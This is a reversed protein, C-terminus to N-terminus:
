GGHRAERAPRMQFLPWWELAQLTKALVSSQALLHAEQSAFWNWCHREFALEMELLVAEPLHPQVQQARKVSASAQVLEGLAQQVHALRMLLSINEKEQKLLEELLDAAKQLYLRQSAKDLLHSRASRWYEDALKVMSEKERPREMWRGLAATLDSSLSDELRALILTVDHRIEPESACLQGQLLRIAEPSACRGVNALATRRSELDSEELLDVFPELIWDRSLRAHRSRERELYLESWEVTEQERQSRVSMGVLLVLSQVLTGVAPFTALGLLLAAWVQSQEGRKKGLLQMGAGWTLVAPLHWLLVPHVSGELLSIGIMCEGLLGMVMLALGLWSQWERKEGM